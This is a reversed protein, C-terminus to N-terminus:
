VNANRAEEHERTIAERLRRYKELDQCLSCGCNEMVLKIRASVPRQKVPPRYEEVPPPPEPLKPARALAMFSVSSVAIGFMAAWYWFSEIKLAMGCILMTSACSLGAVALHFELKM